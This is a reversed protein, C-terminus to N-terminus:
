SKRVFLLWEGALVLLVLFALPRWYDAFRLPTKQAQVTASGLSIRDAPKIDSEVESRLGALVTRTEDGIKLRYAGAREISRITALGDAPEVTPGDEVEVPVTSPITFPRGPSVLLAKAGGGGLLFDLANAVFIPFGPQLPFDSDLPAFGLAIRRQAGTTTTLLPGRDSTALVSGGEVAGIKSVGVSALDVDQLLPDREVGKIRGGKTGGVGGLALVGRARVPSPPVGNFVVIDYGSPAPNPLSKARDLTVRPDLALARELFPDSSGVLLVRATASPDNLAYAVNDSALDDKVDLRAELVRAGTPAPLTEGWAKGAAATVPRSAFPNGDAYLTVKATRSLAGYNKVGVFVKLGGADKAAGLASVALNDSGTGIKQFVVAAGGPAFDTVPRFDGDSLVVLRAGKLDAALAGALRLAEGMDGEADTVAVADLRPLASAPDNTLPFVVRPVAGAEILAVRDGARASRLAERALGKARDFRSPSVDTARMSASTDLVLITVEGVLGAQRIQPRAIAGILLTAALMQLVMLWSFRLRQIPANARVEETHAPWLFTAPLRVSERRMKLIYLALIAGLAPILWLLALPNLLTMAVVGEDGGGWGGFFRWRWM